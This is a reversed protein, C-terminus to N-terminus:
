EKTDLNQFDRQLNTAPVVLRTPFTGDENQKKHDKILLKPTPIARSNITEKIFNYESESLIGEM